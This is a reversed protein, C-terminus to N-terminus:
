ADAHADLVGGAGGPEFHDPQELERSAPSERGEDVDPADALELGAGTDLRDALHDGRAGDAPRRDLDDM